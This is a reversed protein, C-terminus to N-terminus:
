VSNAAKQLNAKVLSLLNILSIHTCVGHAFIGIYNETKQPPTPSAIMVMHEQSM